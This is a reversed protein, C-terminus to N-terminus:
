FESRMRLRSGPRKLGIERADRAVFDLQEQREARLADCCACM